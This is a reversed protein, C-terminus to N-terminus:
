ESLKKESIEAAGQM